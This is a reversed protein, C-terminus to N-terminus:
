DLAEDVSAEIWEQADQEAEVDEAAACYDAALDETTVVSAGIGEATLLFKRVRSSATKPLETRVDIYRPRMFAPLLRALHASLEAPQIRAGDRPVVCLKVEEEVGRSAPVGVAAAEGVGDFTLAAEEIARASILEGRRRIVERLRAHFSYDGEANRTMLDGTRYWGDPAWVVSESDHLYGAFMVHPQRPRLWMEGVRGPPVDRGDEDVLRAECRASPRGVTGPQQPLSVPATWCSATETQGWTEVITIGFRREIERWTDVPAAAGVVWEVPNDADDPRRPRRALVSLITGVFTVARANAARTRAWFRFPDFTADATVHGGRWLAALVTGQATVHALPLCTYLGEGEAIPLLERAYAAGHTSECARSWLVGKPQGTTGSTYLLKAPLTPAVPAIAPRRPGPGGGDQQSTATERPGGADQRDGDDSTAICPTSPGGADQRGETNATADEGSAIIAGAEDLLAPFSRARGTPADDTAVVHQMAPLESRVAQLAADRARDCLIIRAGSHALVARLLAGDLLTNIPMFIAGLRACAFWAAVLPISNGCLVAVVDGQGYGRAALARALRESLADTEAYTLTGDPLTIFPRAGLRRAQQRLKEDLSPEMDFTSSENM